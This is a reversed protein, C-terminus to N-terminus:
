YTVPSQYTQVSVRGLPRGYYSGANVDAGFYRIKKEDVTVVISMPTGRGRRIKFEIDQGLDAHLFYKYIDFIYDMKEGDIREIIDGERLGAEYAPSYPNVVKIELKEPRPNFWLGHTVGSNELQQYNTDPIEKHLAIGVWPRRVRGYAIIDGASKKLM